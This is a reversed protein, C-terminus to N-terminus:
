RKPWVKFVWDEGAHVFAPAAKEMNEVSPMNSVIVPTVLSRATVKLKDLDLRILPTGAQVFQGPEVVRTFGEGKLEVTDLGVHILIEIGEPTTIGAAHGSPFLQTLTGSVPAVVEETEPVLAVGDGVMCQAFVPDDVEQIPILKGTVPAWITVASEEQAKRRFLNKM